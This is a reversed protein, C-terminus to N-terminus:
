RATNSERIFYILAQVAHLLQLMSEQNSRMFIILSIVRAIYM